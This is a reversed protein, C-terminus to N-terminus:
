ALSRGTKMMESEPPPSNRFCISFVSGLLCRAADSWGVLFWFDGHSPTEEVTEEQAPREGCSLGLGMGVGTSDNPGVSGTAGERDGDFRRGM